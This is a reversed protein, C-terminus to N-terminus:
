IYVYIDSFNKEKQLSQKRGSVGGPGGTAYDSIRPIVQQSSAVPLRNLLVGDKMELGGARGTLQFNYVSQEQLPVASDSVFLSANQSNPLQVSTPGTFTVSQPSQPAITDIKLQTLKAGTSVIYYNWTTSRHHLDLYYQTPVIKAQASSLNEVPYVGTSLGPNTFLLDIFFMPTGSFAYVVENDLVTECDGTMNACEEIVYKDEPLLSFDLYVPNRRVPAGADPEPTTFCSPTRSDNKPWYVPECLVIAGSIDRVVVRHSDPNGLYYAYQSGTLRVPEKRTLPGTNLRIDGNKKTQATTNSLYFTGMAPTTGMPMDTFNVFNPNKVSLEFSLRTWVGSGPQAQRRLYDLFKKNQFQDLLISFGTGEGKFLLGMSAILEASATTPAITFDPCLNGSANYFTHRITVQMLRKYFYSRSNSGRLSGLPKAASSRLSDQSQSL